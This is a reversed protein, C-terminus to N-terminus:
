FKNPAASHMTKIIWGATYRKLETADDDFHVNVEEEALREIKWQAGSSITEFDGWLRMFDPKFGLQGMLFERKAEREGTVMGVRHGAKQMANAMDDFFSKHEKYCGDYDFSVTM